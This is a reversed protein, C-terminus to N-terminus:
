FPTPIPLGNINAPEGTPLDLIFELAGDDAPIGFGGAIALGGVIQQLTEYTDPYAEVEGSEIAGLLEVVKQQAESVGSVRITISGTAYNPPMLPNIALEGSATLEVIGGSVNSPQLVLSPPSALIPSLLAAGAMALSTPDFDPSLMVELPPLQVNAAIALIMEMPIEALDVQVSADSPLLGPGDKGLVLNVLTPDFMIEDTFNMKLGSYAILQSIKAQDSQMDQTTFSIDASGLYVDAEGMQTPTQAYFSVDKVGVLLDPLYVGLAFQIGDALTLTSDQLAVMADKIATFSDHVLYSASIEGASFGIPEPLIVELGYLSASLEQLDGEAEFDVLSLLDIGEMSLKLSEDSSEPIEITMGGLALKLDSDDLTAATWDLLPGAANLYLGIMAMDPEIFAEVGMGRVGESVGSLVAALPKLDYPQSYTTTGSLAAGEFDLLAYERGDDSWYDEALLQLRGIEGDTQAIQGDHDYSWHASMGDFLVRGDSDLLDVDNLALAGMDFSGKADVQQTEFLPVFRDILNAIGETPTIAGADVMFFQMIGANLEQQLFWGPTNAMEFSLGLTELSVLEEGDIAFALNDIGFDVSSLPSNKREDFMFVAGDFRLYDTAENGPDGALITDATLTLRETSLAEPNITMSLRLTDAEFATGMMSALGGLLAALDATLSLSGSAEVEAAMTLDGLPLGSLNANGFVVTHATESGDSATATLTDFEIPIGLFLSVPQDMMATLVSEVKESSMTQAQVVPASLVGLAALCSLAVMQHFHRKM